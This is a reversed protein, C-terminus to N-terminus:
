VVGYLDTVGCLVVMVRYLSGWRGSARVGQRGSAHRGVVGWWAGGRVEVVWWPGGLDGVKELGVEVLHVLRRVISGAVAEAIVDILLYEISFVSCVPSNALLRPHLRPAHPMLM